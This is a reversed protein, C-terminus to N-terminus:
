ALGRLCLIMIVIIVRWKGFIQYQRLEYLITIILSLLLDLAGVMFIIARSIQLGEKWITLISDIFVITYETNAIAFQYKSSRIISHM